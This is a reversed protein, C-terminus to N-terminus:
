EASHFLNVPPDVQYEEIYTHQGLSSVIQAQARSISLFAAWAAKVM